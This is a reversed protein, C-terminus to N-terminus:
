NVFILVDPTGELTQTGRWIKRSHAPLIDTYEIFLINQILSSRDRMTAHGDDTEIEQKLTLNRNTM